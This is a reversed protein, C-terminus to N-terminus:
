ADVGDVARRVARMGEAVDDRLFINRGLVTGYGGAQVSMRLVSLFDDFEPTRAGGMILVPVNCVEVVSMFSEVSGTFEVKVMDAGIEAGIRAVLRVYDVRASENEGVSPGRALPELLLPIGTRDCERAVVGVREVEAAERAPDGSGLFMYMHVADAGCYVAHEVTTLLAHDGVFGELGLLDRGRWIDSWDVSVVIGLDTDALQPAFRKAYGPSVMVADAGGRDFAELNAAYESNTGVGPGPGLLMGHTYAAIVSRGSERSRLRRLRLDKSSM